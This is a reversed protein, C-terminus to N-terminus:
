KSKCVTYCTSVSNSLYSISASLIGFVLGSFVWIDDHMELMAFLENDPCQKIKFGKSQCYKTMVIQIVLVIICYTLCYQYLCSCVSMQWKLIVVSFCIVTKNM